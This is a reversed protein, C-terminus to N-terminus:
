RRWSKRQGSSMWWYSLWVVALASGIGIHQMVSAELLSRKGALRITREVDRSQSDYVIAGWLVFSLLLLSFSPLISRISILGKGGKSAFFSKTFLGAFIIRAFLNLINAYVLSADGLGLRYLFVATTIFLLSFM